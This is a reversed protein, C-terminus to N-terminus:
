ALVDGAVRKTPKTVTVPAASGGPVLIPAPATLASPLSANYHQALIVLDSFDVNGAPDFDFNGNYYDKGSTGFNQALKTLDFFDVAGNGTSDGGLFSFDFSVPADLGNGAVDTAADAAISLRFRGDPLLADRSIAATNGSATVATLAIQQPVTLAGALDSLQDVVVDGLALNAAADATDFTVTIDQNFQRLFAVSTVTPGVTDITVSVAASEASTGTATSANATFAYVGDTLASSTITWAGAGSTIASGVIDGNALLTVTTGAQATGSFTPTTDKTIRDSNSVGTDSAAALAPASPVPPPTAGTISTTLQYMQTAGVGSIRIAYTGASLTLGTISESGGIPNDNASQLLTTGNANYVSLALDAQAAGNFSSTAGGQPGQLYTTGVPSATFSVVQSAALTFKYYDVDSSNTSVNTLLTQNSVQVLTGLDSATAATQNRGNREYPDGYISQVALTDDYQPGDFATSVFPEMLKTQNVPDVHNLGLGHGHEHAVVNRLRRSSNSLSTLYGGSVFEDTDIVMDGSNPFYNYALVNSGGDLHHGAIRIDPRVGLVGPSNIFAAGDDSRGTYVYNIGSLQSWRDFVQQFVAVWASTTGYLNDLRAQLISPGSSEGTVGGSPINVGDAVFGWTLTIPTGSSGTGGNTATQSWRGGVQYDGGGHGGGGPVLGGPDIPGTSIVDPLNGVPPVIPSRSPSASLFMRVELTEVFSARRLASRAPKPRRLLPDRFLM